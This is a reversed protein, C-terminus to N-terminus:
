SSIASVTVNKKDEESLEKGWFSWSKDDSSWCFVKYSYSSHKFFFNNKSIVVINDPFSIVISLVRIERM